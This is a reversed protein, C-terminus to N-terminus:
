PTPEKTRQARQRVRRRGGGVTVTLGAEGALEKIRAITEDRRKRRRQDLEALAKTALQELQADSLQALQLETTTTM